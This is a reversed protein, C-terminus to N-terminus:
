VHELGYQQLVDKPVGEWKNPTNGVYGLDKVGIESTYFGTATLDRMRNFFAVGPEM